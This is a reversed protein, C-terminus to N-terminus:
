QETTTTINGIEQRVSAAVKSGPGTRKEETVAAASRISEILKPLSLTNTHYSIIENTGLGLTFIFVLWPNVSLLKVMVEPDMFREHIEDDVMLCEKDIDSKGRGGGFPKSNGTINTIPNMSYSDVLRTIWEQYESKNRFARIRWEAALNLLNYQYTDLKDPHKDVLMLWAKLINEEDNLYFVGNDFIITELTGSFGEDLEKFYVKNEFTTKVYKLAIYVDVATKIIRQVDDIIDPQNM